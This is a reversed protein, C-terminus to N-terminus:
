AKLNLIQLNCAVYSRTNGAFNWTTRYVTNLAFICVNYTYLCTYAYLVLWTMHNIATFYMLAWMLSLQKANVYKQRAHLSMIVDRANLLTHKASMSASSPRHALPSLFWAKEKSKRIVTWSPAGNMVRKIISLTLIAHRTKFITHMGRRRLITDIWYTYERIKIWTLTNLIM